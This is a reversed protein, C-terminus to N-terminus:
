QSFKFFEHATGKLGAAIYYSIIYNEGCKKRICIHLKLKEHM